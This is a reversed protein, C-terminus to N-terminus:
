GIRRKRRAASVLRPASMFLKAIERGKRVFRIVSKPIAGRRRRTRFIKEIENSLMFKDGVSLAVAQLGADSDIDVETIRGLHRLLDKKSARHKRALARVDADSAGQVMATLAPDARLSALQDDDGTANALGTQMSSSVPASPVMIGGIGTPSSVGPLGPIKGIIEPLSLSSTGPSTLAQAQAQLAAKMQKEQQKADLAAAIPTTVLGLGPVVSGALKLVPSAVSKLASGIKKFLGV